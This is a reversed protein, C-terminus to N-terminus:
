QSTQLPTNATSGRVVLHSRFTLTKYPATPQDIRDLLAQAGAEAMVRSPQHVTTLDFAPWASMAIDDYGVIWLQEPVSVRADRAADLAGFATLDNSCFIATPPEDASLLRTTASYGFDHSFPGELMLGASLPMDAAALRECFGRRRDRATSAASPGGIFAIRRHGNEIFYDAVTAGGVVNDSSVQDCALSEVTRNILVVPRHKTLTAQLPPSAETVTTFVIGDVSGSNIAELAADNGPGDSNWLTVKKGAADLYDTLADLIEPYFPNRLDAVVVGITNVRGTKMARAGLNPVYGVTKAAQLIKERTAASVSGGSLARSVTAQSVGAIRAVDRSTSM